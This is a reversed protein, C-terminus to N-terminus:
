DFKEWGLAERIAKREGRIDTASVLTDPDEKQLAALIQM